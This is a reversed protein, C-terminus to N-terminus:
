LHVFGNGPPFIAAAEGWILMKGGRQAIGERITKNLAQGM